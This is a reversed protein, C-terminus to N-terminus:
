AKARRGLLGYVAGGASWLGLTALPAEVLLPAGWCVLLFPAGRGLFERATPRAVDLCGAEPGLEGDCTAKPGDLLVEFVFLMVFATAVVVLYVAMLVETAEPLAFNAGFGM